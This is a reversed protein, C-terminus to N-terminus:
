LHNCPRGCSLHLKYQVRQKCNSSKEFRNSVSTKWGNMQYYKVKLSECCQMSISNSFKCCVYALEAVVVVIVCQPNEYHLIGIKLLDGDYGHILMIHTHIENLICRFFTCKFFPLSDIDLVLWCMIYKEDNKTKGM